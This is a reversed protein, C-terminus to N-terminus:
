LSGQANIIKVIFPDKDSCLSEAKLLTELGEEYDGTSRYNAALLYLNEKSLFGADIRKKLINKSENFKGEASYILASLYNTFNSEGSSEIKLKEKVSDLKGTIRAADVLKDYYKYHAPLISLYKFLLQFATKYHGLKYNLLAALYDKEFESNLKNLKRAFSVSDVGSNLIEIELLYFEESYKSATFENAPLKTLLKESSSSTDSNNSATFGLLGALLAALSLFVITFRQKRLM